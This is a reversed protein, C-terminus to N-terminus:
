RSRLHHHGTNQGALRIGEIPMSDYPYHPAAPIYTLFFREDDAAYKKIQQRIAGLTEEERLGWSVRKTTREGPMTDADYM